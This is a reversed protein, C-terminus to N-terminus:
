SAPEVPAAAAPEAAKDAEEERREDEERICEWLDQKMAMFAAVQQQKRWDADPGSMAQVEKADPENSSYELVKGVRYTYIIWQSGDVDESVRDCRENHDADPDPYQECIEAAMSKLDAYYESSTPENSMHDETNSAPKTGM